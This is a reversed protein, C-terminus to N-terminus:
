ASYISGVGFMDRLYWTDARFSSKTKAWRIYEVYAEVIKALPTKTPYFDMEDRVLKLELRKLQAKAVQHSTTGLAKRREKGHVTYVAYYYKGRRILGAMADM